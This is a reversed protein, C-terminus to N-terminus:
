GPDLVSRATVTPKDKALNLPILTFSLTYPVAKLRFESHTRAGWSNDGGVGMQQLDLNLTVFPRKVLEYQHAADDLDEDLYNRVSFNFLPRGVVQMGIKRENVLALWRVDTKNGNEQPQSYEVYQEDVSGSYRGVRAGKKRDWHSEHPGRGYWTVHQFEGPVTMKMGIRPLDPLDSASPEFSYDVRIQGSGRVSYKVAIETRPRLTEAKVAIEVLSGSVQDAAVSNVKWNKGADKWLGLRKPMANGIDNDIPARWFSPRPGTRILESEEFLFSAITGSKKDFEVRFDEGLIQVIYASDKM